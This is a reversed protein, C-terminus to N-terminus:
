EEGFVTAPDMPPAEPKKVEDEAHYRLDDMKRSTVTDKKEGELMVVRVDKGNSAVSKVKAKMDLYHHPEKACKAIIVTAGPIIQGAASAAAAAAAAAAAPAPAPAAEPKETAGAAPKQTAGAAPEQQVAPAPEGAGKLALLAKAEAQMKEDGFAKIAAQLVPTNVVEWLSRHQQAKTAIDVDGEARAGRPCAGLSVHIVDLFVEAVFAAAEKSYTPGLWENVKGWAVVVNRVVPSAVAEVADADVTQGCAKSVVKADVDKCKTGRLLVRLCKSEHEPFWEEFCKFQKDALRLLFGVNAAKDNGLVTSALKLEQMWDTGGVAGGKNAAAETEVN